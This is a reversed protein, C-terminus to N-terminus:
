LSFVIKEDRREENWKNEEMEKEERGKEEWSVLLCQTCMTTSMVEIKKGVFLTTHTIGLQPGSLLKYPWSSCALPFFNVAYWVFM